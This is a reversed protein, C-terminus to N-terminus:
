SDAETRGQWYGELVDWGHVTDGVTRGNREFTQYRAIEWGPVPGSFDLEVEGTEIYKLVNLRQAESYAVLGAASLITGSLLGTVGLITPGLVTSIIPNSQSTTLDLLEFARQKDVFGLRAFPTLLGTGCTSGGDPLISSPDALSASLNLIVAILLSTSLRLPPLESCGDAGVELTGQDLLRALAEDLFVVAQGDPGQGPVMIPNDGLRSILIALQTRIFDDPLISQEDVLHQLALFNGNLKCDLLDEEYGDNPQGGIGPVAVGQAISYCDNGPVEFALLASYTDYIFRQLVTALIQDETPVASQFAAARRTWLSAPLSAAVAALGTRVIFQRRGPSNSTESDNDNM